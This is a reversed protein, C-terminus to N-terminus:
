QAATAKPREEMVVYAAAAEEPPMDPTKDFREIAIDVATPLRMERLTLLHASFRRVWETCTLEM